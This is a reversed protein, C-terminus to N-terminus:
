LPIDHILKAVFSTKVNNCPDKTQELRCVLILLNKMKKDVTNNAEVFALRACDNKDIGLSFVELYFVAM